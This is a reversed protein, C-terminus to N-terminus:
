GDRLILPLFIYSLKIVKAVATSSNDNADPDPSASTIIATNSLTVTSLPTTVTVLLATPVLALAPRTCTIVSGYQDCLWGDGWVGVYSVQVPLQDTLTVAQASAPGANTVNITYTLLNGAEVQNAGARKVISLGAATPDIANVNEYAGIDCSAGQPRHLGRQDTTPCGNNTGRDIAPSGPLLAQTPTSGGNDHLPGLLPATNTIDGTAALGCTTGSDLNHDASTLTAPLNFGCNGEAGNNSVITNKLSVTTNDLYLSGGTGPVGNTHNSDVTVNVLLTSSESDSYLGGGNDTAANFSLTDNTLVLNGKNHRIGAGSAARNHDITSSIISMSGWNWVGGGSSAAVNYALRTQYITMTAGNGENYVGAGVLATNSMVKSQRLTLVVAFPGGSNYIGSGTNNVITLNIVSAGSVNNANYIGGQNGAVFGTDFALSGGSNAVGYGGTNSIVDVQSLTLAGGENGVGGGQNGQIVSTSLRLAGMVKLGGGSAATNSFVLSNTLTLIGTQDIVFGGGDATGPNGHQITLGHVTVRAGSRIEFARDTQNGDVIIQDQGAGNITLTGSIDLDGTLAGDENPGTTTLVFIAPRVLAPSFEITDAGSGSTCGGVASDTNAAIIAERLACESDDVLVDSTTTVTITSNARAPIVLLGVVVTISILALICSVLFKRNM